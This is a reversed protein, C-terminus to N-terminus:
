MAVIGALLGNPFAAYYRREAAALIELFM